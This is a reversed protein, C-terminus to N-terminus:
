LKPPPGPDPPWKAGRSWLSHPLPPARAPVLCLLRGPCGALAAAWSRPQCTSTIRVLTAAPGAPSLAPPWVGHDCTPFPLSAPSASAIPLKPPPTLPAPGWHPCPPSLWCPCGWGGVAGSSVATPGCALPTGKNLPFHAKVSQHFCHHTVVSDNM